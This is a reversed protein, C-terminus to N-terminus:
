INILSPQQNELDHKPGKFIRLKKLQAKALRSKPMMGSIAHELIYEPKKAMMNRYPIERMGSMYGTYYRYIKQAEKAGTVRIKEANIIIVGDGCDINPTYDPRHKGRLVKTVESAFRGLTKGSADFVLWSRKTEEKKRMFTNQMHVKSQYFRQRNM